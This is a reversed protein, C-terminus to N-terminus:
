RAGPSMRGSWRNLICRLGDAPRARLVGVGFDNMPSRYRPSALIEVLRWKTDEPHTAFTGTGSPGAYGGVTDRKYRDPENMRAMVFFTERKKDTDEITVQISGGDMIYSTEVNRFPERLASLRPEVKAPDFEPTPSFFWMLFLGIAAAISALIILCKKHSM